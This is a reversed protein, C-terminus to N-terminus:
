SGARAFAVVKSRDPVVVGGPPEVTV